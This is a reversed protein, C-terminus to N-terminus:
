SRLPTTWFIQNGITTSKLGSSAFSSLYPMVRGLRVGELYGFSTAAMSFLNEKPSDLENSETIITAIEPGEDESFLDIFKSVSVAYYRPM